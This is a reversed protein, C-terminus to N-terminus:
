DTRHTIKKLLTLPKMQGPRHGECYTYQKGTILGVYHYARAGVCPEDSIEFWTCEDYRM